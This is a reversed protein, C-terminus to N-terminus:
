PNTSFVACCIHRHIRTRWLCQVETRSSAMSVHKAVQFGSDDCRPKTTVRTGMEGRDDKRGDTTRWHTMDLLNSIHKYKVSDCLQWLQWLVSNCVNISRCSVCHATSMCHVSIEFLWASTLMLRSVIIITTTARYTNNNRGRIDYPLWEVCKSRSMALCSQGSPMNKQTHILSAM